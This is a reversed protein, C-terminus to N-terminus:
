IMFDHFSFLVSPHCNLVDCFLRSKGGRGDGVHQAPLLFYFNRLLCPLFDQLRAFLQVICLAGGFRPHFFRPGGNGVNCPFRAHRGRHDGIHDVVAGIQLDGLLRPFLDQLDAVEPLVMRRLDCFRQRRSLAIGVDHPDSEAVRGVAGRALHIKESQDAKQLRGAGRVVIGNLEQGGDPFPYFHPFVNRADEADVQGLLLKVRQFLAIKHGDDRQVHRHVVRQEVFRVVIKKCQCLACLLQEAGAKGIDRPFVAVAGIQLLQFLREAVPQVDCPASLSPKRRKQM